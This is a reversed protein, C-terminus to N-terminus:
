SCFYAERFDTVGDLSWSVLYANQFINFKNRILLVADVISQAFLM